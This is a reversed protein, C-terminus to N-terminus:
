SGRFNYFPRLCGALSGAQGEMMSQLPEDMPHAEATHKPQRKQNTGMPTLGSILYEVWTCGVSSTTQEWAM